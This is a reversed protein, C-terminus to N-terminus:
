AFLSCAILSIGARAAISLVVYDAIGALTLLNRSIQVHQLIM